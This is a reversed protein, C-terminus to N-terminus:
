HSDSSMPPPCAPGARLTSDMLTGVLVPRSLFLPCIPLSRQIGETRRDWGWLELRLSAKLYLIIGDPKVPVPWGGALSQPSAGSQFACSTAREGSVGTIAPSKSFEKRCDLNAWCKVPRQASLRRSEPPLYAPEGRGGAGARCRNQLHPVPRPAPFACFDSSATGPAPRGRAFLFVQVPPNPTDRLGRRSASSGLGAGRRARAAWSGQAPSPPTSGLCPRGCGLPRGEPGSGWPLLPGWSGGTAM